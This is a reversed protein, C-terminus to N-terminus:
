SRFEVQALKTDQHKTQNKEEDPVYSGLLKIGLPKHWDGAGILMFQLKEVVRISARNDDGVVYWFGRGQERKMAVIENLAFSALGKGRHDPHTWTDGIQLDADSLFPFRWYRPTFGSYHVLRNAHHICIAGVERNAFMHARDLMWRFAFRARISIGRIGSPWPKKTSPWWVSVHYGAPLTISDHPMWGSSRYFLYRHKATDTPHPFGEQPALHM